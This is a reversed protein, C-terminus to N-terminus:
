EDVWQRDMWGEIWGDMWDEMWGDMWDEMWGGMWGTRDIWDEMWGDLRGHISWGHGM